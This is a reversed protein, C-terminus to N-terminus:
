YTDSWTRGIQEVWTNVRPYGYGVERKSGDRDQLSPATMREVLVDVAFQPLVEGLPKARIGQSVIL